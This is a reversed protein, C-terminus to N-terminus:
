ILPSSVKYVDFHLSLANAPKRTAEPLWNNHNSLSNSAKTPFPCHSISLSVAQPYMATVRDHERPVSSTLFVKFCISVMQKLMRYRHM